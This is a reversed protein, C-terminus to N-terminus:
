TARFSRGESPRRERVGSTPSDSEGRHAQWGRTGARALVLIGGAVCLTGLTAVFSVREGLVVVAGIFSLLPGTGRAVPYVISLDGSRYGRVLCEAYFLHLVGTMVLAALQPGDFRVAQDRLACLVAPLVLVAEGLSTFWILHRAASARKALLNWTSHAVAAILVLVLSRIPM